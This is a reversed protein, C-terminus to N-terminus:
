LISLYAQSSYCSRAGPLSPRHSSRYGAAFVSALGCPKQQIAELVPRQYLHLLTQDSWPSDAVINQKAMQRIWGDTRRTAACASFHVCVAGAGYFGGRAACRMPVLSGGAGSREGEWEGM